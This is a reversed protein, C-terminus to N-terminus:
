VSKPKAFFNARNGCFEDVQDLIWPFDKMLKVANEKTYKFPKGGLAINDWGSVMKAVSAARNETLKRLDPKGEDVGNRLADLMAAKYEPNDPSLCYVVIDTKEKTKPNLIKCPQAEDSIQLDSIDM